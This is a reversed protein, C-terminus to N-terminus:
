TSSLLPLYIAGKGSLEDAKSTQQTYYDHSFHIVSFKWLVM